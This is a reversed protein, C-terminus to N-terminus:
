LQKSAPAKGVSKASPFPSAPSGWQEAGWCGWFLSSSGRSSHQDSPQAPLWTQKAMTLNPTSPHPSIRKLHVHRKRYRNELVLKLGALPCDPSTNKRLSNRQRPDEPCRCLTPPAVSFDPWFHPRSQEGSAFSSALLACSSHLYRGRGM